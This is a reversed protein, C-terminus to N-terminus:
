FPHWHIFLPANTSLTLNATIGKIANILAASPAPLRIETGWVAADDGEGWGRAIEILEPVFPGVSGAIAVGFTDLIFTKASIIADNPIDEFSTGNVHEALREIADSMPDSSTTAAM